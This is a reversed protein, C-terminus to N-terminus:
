VNGFGEAQMIRKIEAARRVCEAHEAILQQRRAHEEQLRRVEPWEEDTVYRTSGDPMKCRIKNDSIRRVLCIAVPQQLPPM